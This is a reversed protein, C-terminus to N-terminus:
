RVTRMAPDAPSTSPVVGSQASPFGTGGSRGDTPSRQTNYRPDQDRRAIGSPSGYPRHTGSDYYGYYRDDRGPMAYPSTHPVVGNAAPIGAGGSRGDTPSHYANDPGITGRDYPGTAFRWGFLSYYQPDSSPVAGSTPSRYGTGGSRGDTPSRYSNSDDITGRQGSTQAFAGPAALAGVVASVIVLSRHRQM